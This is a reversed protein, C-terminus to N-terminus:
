DLRKCVLGELDNEVIARWLADSEGDLAPVITLGDPAQHLVSELIVQREVLMLDDVDLRHAHLLDFCALKASAAGRSAQLALFDMRGDVTVVGEGDLVVDDIPLAQLAALPCFHLISWPCRCHPRRLQRGTLLAPVLDTCLCRCTRGASMRLPRLGM